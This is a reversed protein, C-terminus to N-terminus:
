MRKLLGFGEKLAFEEIMIWKGMRAESEINVFVKEGGLGGFDFDREKGGENEIM